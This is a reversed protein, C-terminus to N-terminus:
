KKRIFLSILHLNGKKESVTSKSIMFIGENAAYDLPPGAELETGSSGSGLGGVCRSGSGVPGSWSRYTGAEVAPLRSMM